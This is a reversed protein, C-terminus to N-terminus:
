FVRPGQTVGFVNPNSTGAVLADILSGGEPIQYARSGGGGANMAYNKANEASAREAMQAMQRELTMGKVASYAVQIDTVDHEDLWSDIDKAYEKFDPTSSIFEEVSGEFKRLDERENFRNELQQSAAALREEVLKTIDDVSAKEYAKAGLEQKVQTHAAQVATADNVSVKGELAAKALEPTLKGDVIAQVLEPSQDLKAIVPQIAELYSRYSGLEQGQAGLKKELEQYMQQYNIGGQAQGSQTGPAGANPSGAQDNSSGASQKAFM